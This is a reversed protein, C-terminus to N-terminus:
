LIIARYKQSIRVTRVKPDKVDHIKEYNISASTPDKSFKETFERVRKQESRPIRAYADLFDDAIAVIPMPTVIERMGKVVTAGVGQAPGFGVADPDERTHQRFLSRAEASLAPHPISVSIM